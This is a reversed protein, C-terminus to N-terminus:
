IMTTFKKRFQDIDRSTLRDTFDRLDANFTEATRILTVVEKRVPTSTVYYQKDIRERKADEIESNDRGFIEMLLVIAATHNECKIGSAFLLAMVSYYMSYYAMSVSQEFLDNDPLM